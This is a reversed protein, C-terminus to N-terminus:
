RDGPLYGASSQFYKTRRRASMDAAEDQQRRLDQLNAQCYRCGITELHFGVYDAQEGALAGLL